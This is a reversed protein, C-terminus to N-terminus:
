PYYTHDPLKPLDESWRRVELEYHMGGWTDCYFGVAYDGAKVWANKVKLLNLIQKGLAAMQKVCDTEEREMAEIGAEYDDLIVKFKDAEALSNFQLPTEPRRHTLDQRKLHWTDYNTKADMYANVLAEFNGM